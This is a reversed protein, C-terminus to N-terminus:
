HPIKGVDNVLFKGVEQVGAGQGPKGSRGQGMGRPKARVLLLQKSFRVFGDVIVNGEIQVIKVDSSVYSYLTEGVNKTQSFM